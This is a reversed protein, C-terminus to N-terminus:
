FASVDKVYSAAARVRAVTEPWNEKKGGFAQKLERLLQQLLIVKSAHLTARPSQFFDGPADSNFQFDHRKNAAIAVNIVTAALRQQACILDVVAQEENKELGDVLALLSKSDIIARPPIGRSGLDEACAKTQNIRALVELKTAPDAGDATANKETAVLYTGMFLHRSPKPIQACNALYKARSALPVVDEGVENDDDDDNNTPAKAAGVPKGETSPMVLALIDEKTRTPMIRELEEVVNHWNELADGLAQDAAPDGSNVVGFVISSAVKQSKAKDPGMPPQRRAAFSQLTAEGNADAGGDAGNSKKAKKQQKPAGKEKVLDAALFEINAAIKVLVFDSAKLHQPNAVNCADPLTKQFWAFVGAADGKEYASTLTATELKCDKAIWEGLVTCDFLAIPVETGSEDDESETRPMAGMGNAWDKQGAFCLNVFTRAMDTPFFKSKMNKPISLVCTKGAASMFPVVFFQVTGDVGDIHYPMVSAFEMPALLEARAALLANFAVLAKETKELTELPKGRSFELQKETEIRKIEAVRVDQKTLDIAHISARKGNASEGEIFMKTMLASIKETKNAVIDSGVLIALLIRAREANAAYKSLVPVTIAAKNAKVLSARWLGHNTFELQAVPVPEKKVKKPASKVPPSKKEMIVKFADKNSVDGETAATDVAMATTASPSEEAAAATAATTTTAVKAADFNKKTISILMNTAPTGWTASFKALAKEDDGGCESVKKAHIASFFPEYWVELAKLMKEDADLTTM